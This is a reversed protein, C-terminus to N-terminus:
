KEQESNMCSSPTSKTSVWNHCVYLKPRVSNNAQCMFIYWKGSLKQSVKKRKEAEVKKIRRNEHPELTLRLIQGSITPTANQIAIFFFIYLM